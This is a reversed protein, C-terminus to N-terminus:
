ATRDPQPQPPMPTPVDTSPDSGPAITMTEGPGQDPNYEKNKMSDVGTEERLIDNVESGELTERELLKRAIRDLSSMRGLKALRAEM